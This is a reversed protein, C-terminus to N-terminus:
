HMTSRLGLSFVDSRHDFRIRKSVVQEPSTYYPTGSYDGSRSIALADEIKALGFDALKAKGEKTLLINSPKVDRHIVGKSHAHELADAVDALVRATEQFYDKPLAEKEAVETIRKQLNDSGEILEQAIYYIGDQEGILLTTVIKPHSQKGGAVGERNFRKVANESLSLSPKLVKLAVKRKLSRQEAEYVISMGGEGIKRLIRFDGVIHPDLNPAKESVSRTSLEIEELRGERLRDFLERLENERESYKGILAEFDIEEGSDKKRLYDNFADRSEQSFEHYESSSDGHEMEDVM